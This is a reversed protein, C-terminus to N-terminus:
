PQLSATFFEAGPAPDIGTNPAAFSQPSGIVELRNGTGQLSEPLPVAGVLANGYVNARTGSGTVGRLLARVYNGDGPWYSGSSIAGALKFDRGPM